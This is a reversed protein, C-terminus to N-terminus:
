YKAKKEEMSTLIQHVICKVKFIKKRHVGKEGNLEMFANKNQEHDSVWHRNLSFKNFSHIFPNLVSKTKRSKDDIEKVRKCFELQQDKKM